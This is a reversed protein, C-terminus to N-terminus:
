NGPLMSGISSYVYKDEHSHVIQVIHKCSLAIHIASFICLIENEVIFKILLLSAKTQNKTAFIPLLFIYLIIIVPSKKLTCCVTGSHKGARVVLTFQFIICPPYFFYWVLSTGCHRTSLNMSGNYHFHKQQLAWQTVAQLLILNSKSKKCQMRERSCVSM